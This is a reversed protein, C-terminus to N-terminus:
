PKPAAAEAPADSKAADPKAANPKAPEAKPADAGPWRHDDLRGPDANLAEGRVLLREVADSRPGSAAGGLLAGGESRRPATLVVVPGALPKPRDVLPSANPEGGNPTAGVLAEAPKPQYSKRIEQEVYHALKRSGAKSFHVGDELRLRANQGDLQPGVAAYDGNEDVFGEWVDVFTGGAAQVREKVMANLAILDSNARASSSPALGVWYVPINKAKFPAILADVRALYRERWRPSLPAADRMDLFPQRDNVGVDIVAYALPGEDAAKRAAEAFDHYDARVLGANPRAYRKIGIEPADAFAEQLGGALGDAVSDGLVAVFVSPPTVPAAPDGTPIPPVPTPTPEAPKRRARPKPRVEVAGPDRRATWGDDIEPDRPRAGFLRQLFNPQSERRRVYRAAEDLARRREAERRALAERRYANVREDIMRDEDYRDYSRERVYGGPADYYRRYYGEQALAPALSLALGSLALSVALLRALFAGTPTRRIM